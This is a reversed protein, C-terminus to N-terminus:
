SGDNVEGELFGAVESVDSFFRYEDNKRGIHSNSLFYEATMGECTADLLGPNACITFVRSRGIYGGFRFRLTHANNTSNRMYGNIVYACKRGKMVEYARPADTFFHKWSRGNQPLLCLVADAKEMVRLAMDSDPISGLDVLTYDYAEKLDNTILETFIDQEDTSPTGGKLGFPAPFIDLEKNITKVACERIKEKTLKGGRFLLNLAYLGSHSNVGDRLSRTIHHDFGEEIGDTLYPAETLAVSHGRLSLMSGCSSVASTVKGVGAWPSFFAFLKGM